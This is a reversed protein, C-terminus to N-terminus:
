GSAPPADLLQRIQRLLTGPAFPKELFAASEHLLGNRMVASDTYGSVFLVKIGPCREALRLALERGNMGPMVVDTLLLDIRCGKEDAVRLAEAANSAELVSYGHRSLVEKAMARLAPEDEVLLITETGFNRGSAEPAPSPLTVPGEVAPLYVKFTTGIGPESYVWVHGNNQKVIGYVTSLGLGTGRGVEKTTFFPEFLHPRVESNIGHGTDSVALMAYSGPRVGLHRSAYAQDLETHRTELTLRGGQPMADSANVALNMVIQEIQGPDAKVPPLASDLETLLEVNEGILRRLMRSVGAVVSNLDLVQPRVMQKRSFALLQRVLSTAREGANRIELIEKSLLSDGGLQDLVLQSYGNIVTLLNNFDHAVGGALNGVAEMKQAQRLQEELQRQDTIDIGTGIVYEVVGEGDMIVSNSWQILRREGSRTLWYNVRRHPFEPNGPTLSKSTMGLFADRIEDHEEPALFLEFFAQGTVEEASYSTCQECARNFRVIRGERDLVVVLSGVTDVIASSFDRERLLEQEVRKRQTVERDIGRYGRFTGQADFFPLGSTELVVLRGDRHVNTNELRSFPARAAVTGAILAFLREAERPPMLDMPYKGLVEEPAYGLIERVKPSAYTYRLNEDVEWVWDSTTEVLDRFRQESRRLVEQDHKRGTIDVFTTIVEMLEGTRPDNIPASDVSIWRFAQPNGAYVGMVFDHLGQGTRLTVRSPREDGPLFSGDDRIAQWDHDLCTKGILQDLTVDLIRCAANNAHIIRGSRDHVVIGAAIAECRRQFPKDAPDEPDRAPPPTRSSL